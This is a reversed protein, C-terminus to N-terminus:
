KNSLVYGRHLSIKAALIKNIIIPIVDARIVADIAFTRNEILAWIAQDDM